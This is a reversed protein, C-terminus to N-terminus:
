PYIQHSNKNQKQIQTNQSITIFFLIIITKFTFLKNTLHKITLTKKKKKKKPLWCILGRRDGVDEVPWWLWIEVLGVIWWPWSSEVRWGWECEDRFLGLLFNVAVWSCIWLLIVIVIGVVVLVWLLKVFTLVFGCVVFFWGFIYWNLLGGFRLFDVM